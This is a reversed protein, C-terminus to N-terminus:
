FLLKLPCVRRCGAIELRKGEALAWKIADEVQKHDQPQLADAM